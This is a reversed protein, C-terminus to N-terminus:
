KNLILAIKIIISDVLNFAHMIHMGIVIGLLLPESHASIYNKIKTIM